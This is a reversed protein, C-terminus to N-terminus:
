GLILEFIYHSDKNPNSNCAIVQKYTLDPFIEKAPLEIITGAKACFTTKLDPFRMKSNAILFFYVDASGDITIKIRDTEKFQHRCVKIYGGIAVHHVYVKRNAHRMIRRIDFFANVKSRGGPVRAYFFRLWCLNREMQLILDEVANKVTISDQKFSGILGTQSSRTDILTDHYENVEVVAAALDPFKELGGALGLLSIARSAYSGHYFRNRNRGWVSIYDTSGKGLVPRILDDFRNLKAKMNKFESKMYKTTAGKETAVSGKVGLANSLVEMSIDTENYLLMFGQDPNNRNSYLINRTYTGISLANSVSAEMAARFPNRSGIWDTTKM